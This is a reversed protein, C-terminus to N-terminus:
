EINQVQERLQEILVKLDIAAQSTRPDVSKSGLTNAERNFEQMLFDLRRGVPQDLELIRRAEALHVSLRDLEEDVDIRSLGLVLEQELRSPDASERLGALRERLKQELGRRIDPLWERVQTVLAEIADLRERMLVALRAGERQRAATFAALLADLAALAELQLAEPDIEARQLLGPFQLLQALEVEIQPFRQRAECAMQALQDLLDTNLVMASSATGRLRLSLEVKGRQLHGAIRERLVPELARLEEPLRLSLELYRHNVSRMEAWLLGFATPRETSAYATMSRIM